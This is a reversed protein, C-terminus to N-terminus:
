GNLAEDANGFAELLAQDDAFTEETSPGAQKWREGAAILSVLITEVKAHRALTDELVRGLVEKAEIVSLLNTGTRGLGQRTACLDACVSEPIPTACFREALKDILPKETM